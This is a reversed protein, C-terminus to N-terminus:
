QVRFQAASGAPKSFVAELEPSVHDGLVVRLTLTHTGKALDTVLTQAPDLPTVDLWAALPETSKLDLAVPGGELVDVTGQLYLVTQGTAKLEDLPLTGAVKGFAWTWAEAPASLVEQRLIEVNPIEAILQDGPATLVRWRQVTGRTRIAYPGPKGLESVFRALDLFENQTLFKVLGEPMPSRGELEEDIDATAVTLIAGTADRLKVEQDNRDVVVGSFTQGSTTVINKTIYQEKIALNPNLISNVVYEVPSTGGIPSLDPGINGGGGSVSHCKMCNVDARRFVREGRVADGKAVVDAVIKGLAAGTPPVQDAAMGAAKSLVDSLAADSRGAAYMTRLALKAM